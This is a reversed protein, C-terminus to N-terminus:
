KIGLSLALGRREQELYEKIMEENQYDNQLKSRREDVLRKESKMKALEAEYAKIMKQKHLPLMIEIKQHYRQKAEALKDKIQSNHSHDVGFPSRCKHISHNTATLSISNIGELIKANREKAAVNQSAISATLRALSEAKVVRFEDMTALRLATKQELVKRRQNLRRLTEETEDFRRSTM